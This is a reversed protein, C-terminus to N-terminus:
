KLGFRDVFFGGLVGLGAQVYRNSLAKTIWAPEEDHQILREQIALIVKDQAESRNVLDVYQAGREAEIMELRNLIASLDLSPVPPAPPVVPPLSVVVGAPAVFGACGGGPAAACAGGRIWQPVAAGNPDAQGLVDFYSLSPSHLLIDCSVSVAGLPCSNGDGKQFMGWGPNRGAVANLLQAQEASTMTPGYKAREAQIDPLLNQQGFAPVAWIVFVVLCVGRNLKM